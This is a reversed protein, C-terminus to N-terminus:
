LTLMIFVRMKWLHPTMIVSDIIEVIRVVSVKCNVLLPLNHTTKQSNFLTWDQTRSHQTCYSTICSWTIFANSETKNHKLKNHNYSYNITDCHTHIYKLCLTTNTKFHQTRNWCDTWEWHQGSVLWRMWIRDIQLGDWVIESPRGQNSFTFTVKAM